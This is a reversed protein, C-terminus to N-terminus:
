GLFGAHKAAKRFASPANGANPITLAFANAIGKSLRGLARSSGSGIFIISRGMAM